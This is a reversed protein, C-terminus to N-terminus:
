SIREVVLPPAELESAATLISEGHIRQVGGTGTAARRIGARECCGVIHRRAELAPALM